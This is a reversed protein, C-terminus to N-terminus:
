GEKTFDLIIKQDETYGYKYREKLLSQFFLKWHVRNFNTKTHCPRCLTICNQPFSNKKDYDIHHISLKYDIQEQATNCVVCCYNDRERIKEKFIQNFDPTYPRFHIFESWDELNIGQHYVSLKKKVLLARDIGYKEEYSNYLLGWRMCNKNGKLAESRNRISIGYFKLAQYITSNNCQKIKAITLTSMRKTIYMDELEEKTLPVCYKGKHPNIIRGEAYAKKLSISRKLLEMKSQIHFKGKNAISIKSKTENSHHKGYMPNNEGKCVGRTILTNRIKEKVEDKTKKGFNPHNIGKRTRSWYEKQEPTHVKKYFPGGSGKRTESLKRLYNESFIDKGKRRIINQKYLEKLVTSKACGKIKSISISSLKQTVYLKNLDTWVITRHRDYVGRM